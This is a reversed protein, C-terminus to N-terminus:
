EKVCRVSAAFSSPDSPAFTLYGPEEVYLQVCLPSAGDTVWFSAYDGYGFFQWEGDSIVAYGCPLASFNLKDTIIFVNDAYHDWMRTGNFSADKAMIAGADGAVDWLQKWQDFTPLAYGSPCASQAEAGSYFGGFVDWLAPEELYPKGGVSSDDLNLRKWVVGDIETEEPTRSVTVSEACVAKASLSATRSSYGDATAVAKVVVNGPEDSVTFRFGTATSDSLTGGEVSITISIVKGAAADAEKLSLDQTLSFDFVSGTRVYSPMTGISISGSMSKLSTKSDKDKNCSLSLCLCLCLAPISLIGRLSKM